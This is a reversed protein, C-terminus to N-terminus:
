MKALDAPYQVLGLDVLQQSGGFRKTTDCLYSYDGGLENLIQHYTSYRYQCFGERANISADSDASWMSDAVDSKLTLSYHLLVGTAKSVIAPTTTHNCTYRIGRGGKILPVKELLEFTQFIRENVGGKVHWYPCQDNNFFRYNDDFYPSHILLDEGSQYNTQQVVTEPYMELMFAFLVEHGNSDMYHLLQKLGHEEMVILLYVGTDM